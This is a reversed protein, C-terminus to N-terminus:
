GRVMPRSTKVTTSFLNNCMDRLDYCNIWPEQIKEDEKGGSEKKEIEQEELFEKARCIHCM